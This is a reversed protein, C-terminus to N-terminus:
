KTPQAPRRQRRLFPSRGGPARRTIGASAMAKRVTDAPQGTLLEIHVTSLGCDLYLDRLLAETLRFPVPFRQPLPGPKRVVPVDHRRLCERVQLDDYLADLLRIASSSPANGGDRVALANDHLGALVRNLGSSLRRGVERAPLGQDVYLQQLVAKEPRHRDERNTRGRSRIPIDCELLWIRVRHEPVNLVAAVQARTFRQEVYLQRLVEEIGEPRSVRANPRSRGRGHPAPVIGASRIAAAVQRRPLRLHTAIQRISLGRRYLDALTDEPLVAMAPGPQRDRAEIRDGDTAPDVPLVSVPLRTGGLVLQKERPDTPIKTM